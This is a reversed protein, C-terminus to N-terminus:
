GANTCTGTTQRKITSVVNRELNVGEICAEPKDIAAVYRYRSDAGEIKSSFVPINMRENPRVVVLICNSLNFVSVLGQKVTFCIRWQTVIRHSPLLKNGNRKVPFIVRADNRKTTVVCDDKWQKSRNVGSVSGDGDDVKIRMKTHPSTMKTNM